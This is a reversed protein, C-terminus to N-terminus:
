PFIALMVMTKMIAPAILIYWNTTTDAFQGRLPIFSLFTNALNMNCLYLLIASIFYQAYLISQMIMRM